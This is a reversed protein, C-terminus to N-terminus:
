FFFCGISVLKQSTSDPYYTSFLLAPSAFIPFDCPFTRRNLLSTHFYFSLPHTLLHFGSVAPPQSLEQNPTSLPLSLFIQPLSPFCSGKSPHHPSCLHLPSKFAKRHLMGIGVGVCNVKCIEHLVLYFRSISESM